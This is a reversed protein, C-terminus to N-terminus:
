VHAESMETIAPKDHCTLYHDRLPEEGEGRGLATWLSMLCVNLQRNYSYGCMRTGIIGPKLLCVCKFLKQVM